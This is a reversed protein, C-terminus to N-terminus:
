KIIFMVFTPYLYACRRVENTQVLKIKLLSIIEDRYIQCFDKFHVFAGEIEKPDPVISPYYDRLLHDRGKLLLYHVAGLLLNPVPQGIRAFSSLELIEDDEAIKRSLLEYLRSSGKCEIDAFNKFRVSLQSQDM